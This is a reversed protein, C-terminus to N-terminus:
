ETVLDKLIDEAIKGAERAGKDVAAAIYKKFDIFKGVGDIVMDPVKSDKLLYEYLDEILKEPITDYPISGSIGTVAEKLVQYQQTLEEHKASLSAHEGALETLKTSLGTKENALHEIRVDREAMQKNMNKIAEGHEKAASEIQTNHSEIIEDKEKNL